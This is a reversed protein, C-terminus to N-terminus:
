ELKRLTRREKIYKEISDIPALPDGDEVFSKRPVIHLYSMSLELLEAFQKQNNSSDFDDASLLDRIKDLAGQAHAM